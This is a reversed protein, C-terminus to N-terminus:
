YDVPSDAASAPKASLDGGRLVGTHDIYFSRRGLKPYSKPTATAEFSDGAATFKIEYGEIEASEPEEHSQGAATLEELTGYRGKSAKYVSEDNHLSRLRWQARAENSRLAALETSIIASATFLSLLNKPIHLEHMLGNADKTALHTIAGPEPNLRALYNRTDENDIDQIAKPVDEFMGKLLASSVYVQGLAQRQQWGVSNRFREVNALTDGNNYADTIRRMTAPDPAAVLFRDIFALTGNSFTLIEVEGRKEIISQENLGILGFASLVRPLLEQLSKKDNLSVVLIPGAVPPVSSEDSASAASNSRAGPRGGFWQGPLGVAIENGLASLLEEKIRFKNTKEFSNLQESFTAKGADDGAPALDLIKLMSAVYDYMQPLDLSASLFIDTDAPLVSSAESAISPGSLLVPLFPIPHLPQDEATNVLLGRVILADADLSAGVGVSEPWGSSGPSSESFILREISQAFQLSQERRREEELEKASKPPASVEPSPPPPPVDGSLEGVPAAVNMNAPNLNSNTVVAVNANSIMDPDIDEVAVMNANANTNTNATQGERQQRRAGARAEEEQRKYEKELAERRQKNNREMRPLNLYLFLTDATFRSRAAQFGPDESLPKDNAGRLARFTFATDSLAILGGSRKVHVPTVASQKASAGRVSAEVTQSKARRKGSRRATTTLTAEGPSPTPALHSAIFQKLEPALKQAAEVSPMEVAAVTEPLGARTPMTAFMLRATMLSEAHAKIFQYLDQLEKPAGGKTMLPRLMEAFDPSNIQQGVMRMEGYIGYADAAFLTDATVEPSKEKAAAPAPKTNVPPVPAPKAPRQARVPLLLVSVVLLLSAGRRACLPSKM